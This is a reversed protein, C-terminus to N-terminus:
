FVEEVDIDQKNKENEDIEYYIKRCLRIFTLPSLRQCSYDAETGWINEVNLFNWEALPFTLQGEAKVSFNNQKLVAKLTIMDWAVYKEKYIGQIRERISEKFKDEDTNEVSYGWIIMAGMDQELLCRNYQFLLMYIVFLITSIVVPIVLAAEVTFYANKRECENGKM